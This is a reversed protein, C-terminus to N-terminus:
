KSNEVTVTKIEARKNSKIVDAIYQLVDPPINSLNTINSIPASGGTSDTNDTNATNTIDTTNTTNTDSEKVTILNPKADEAIVPAQPKNNLKL